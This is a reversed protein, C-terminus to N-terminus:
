YRRYLEWIDKLYRLPSVGQRLSITASGRRIFAHCERELHLPPVGEGLALTASRRKIFHRCEREWDFSSLVERM